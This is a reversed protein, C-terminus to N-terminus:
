GGERRGGERRGGEGRGGEERGGGQKAGELEGCFTVVAGSDGVVKLTVQCATGAISWFPRIM